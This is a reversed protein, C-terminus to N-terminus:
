WGGGGGGGGGGGSSGGSSGGSRSSPRTAASSAAGGLSRTLSSTLAGPGTWDSGRSHYWHPQYSSRAQSPDHASAALKAEFKETWEREVGLAMAYPLHKEFLAATIEPERGAQNLRDAEAVSLYLRYGEIADLTQRGLHTPAALWFWFAVTVAVAVAAVILAVPTVIDTLLTMSGAVPVLFGVSMGLIALSAVFGAKKGSRVSTRMQTIARSILVSSPVGFAAAFVLMMLMGGLNDEGKVDALLAVLVAALGILAGLFWPRRNKLHYVRSYEKGFAGRLATRASAIRPEYKKGFTVDPDGQGFLDDFVAREDRPLDDPVADSKEIAFTRDGTEEITIAGRTALSTLTVTFAHGPAFGGGFGCNWIFGVAVPSLGDPPGFLPIITGKEPDRGLRDWIRVFYAILVALLVFGLLPGRNDGLVSMARDIMSPRDVAGEPWVM